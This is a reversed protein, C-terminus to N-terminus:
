KLESMWINGNTEAFEFAIQDNAPSWSPYRVYTNLKSLNTLKRQKGSSRSVTYVNWIGDRQGAFVIEEGDASWDSVWSQGPEFTLQKIAGGEWPMVAVFADSGRKLQIALWKGDPSWAPFGAFEEDFTVQKTVGGDTSRLFVNSTGSTKSQFAVWKGDPSPRAIFVEEGFDFLKKETSGDPTVLWMSSTDGETSSFWIRTGDRDWTPSLGHVSGIQKEESGDSNMVWIHAKNGTSFKQIAIRRGDPSFTPYVTRTHAAQTIQEPEGAGAATLRSSWINSTTALSSFAIRKGAGDVAMHRIRGGSSDFVNEPEGKVECDDDVAIRQLSTNMNASFYVFGGESSFIPDSIPGDAISWGKVEGSSFDLCALRSSAWDSTDFVVKTGDPSWSPRGHGGAPDGKSTLPKPDGGKVSVAWITSPPLANKVNSSLDNLPDSQFAVQLGDPSFAPASGFDTLQKATGGTTPVIWIGGRKKSHFAIYSGDPSISPQFNQNGDNTVQVDRAGSVLQRVYIEFGGSRDSSFAITGGDRSITPFLDLGSWTTVQATRSITLARHAVIQSSFYWYAALSAALVGIILFVSAFAFKRTSTTEFSKTLVVPKEHVADLRTPADNAPNAPLIATPSEAVQHVLWEGDELCFNLTEDSYERDCKPCYKM